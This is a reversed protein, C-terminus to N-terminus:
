YNKQLAKTLVGQGARIQFFYMGGPLDGLPIQLSGAAQGSITLIGQQLLKGSASILHWTAQGSLSNEAQWQVTVQDVVPNPFTNVRIATALKRDATNSVIGAETQSFISVGTSSGEFDVFQLKWLKDERDKVFYVVDNEIRYSFTSLDFSKWDYGIVDLNTAFTDTGAQFERQGPDQTAVEAVEIGPGQLVGTVLYDLTGGQGDDLPTFYRTFVLDYNVPIETIVERTKLSYHILSRDAYMRTDVTDITENTGDLDAYSFSFAGSALEHIRFKIWSSDRKQVLYAPGNGVIHNAPNYSGWGFDFPDAPDAVQAFAGEGYGSHANYLREAAMEPSLTDQYSYGSSLRYLGLTAGSADSTENLWIGASFGGSFAIDWADGAVSVAEQTELLYYVEQAYGAGQTIEIFEADQASLLQIQSIVLVFLTFRQVM